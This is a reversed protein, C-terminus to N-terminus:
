IPLQGRLISTGSHSPDGDVPEDSIDVIPFAAADVGPPVDYDGDARLPGLSVLETVSPDILWVEFFGDPTDLGATELQLHISDDIRVLEARGGASGIVPELEVTSLVQIEAEDDDNVLVVAIVTAAAVALGAAAARWRRRGLSTSSAADVRSAVITRESNVGTEAAIRNWLEPPAPEWEIEDLGAREVLSRLEDLEDDGPPRDRPETMTM